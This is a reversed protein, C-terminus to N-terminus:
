LFYVTTLEFIGSVELDSLKTFNLLRVAQM